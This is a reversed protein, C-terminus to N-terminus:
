SKPGHMEQNAMTTMKRWISRMTAQSTQVSLHPKVTVRIMALDTRGEDPLPVNNNKDDFSMRSVHLSMSIRNSPIGDYEVPSINRLMM